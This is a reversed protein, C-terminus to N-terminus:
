GRTNRTESAVTLPRYKWNSAVLVCFNLGGKYTTKTVLLRNSEGLGLPEKCIGQSKGLACDGQRLGSAAKSRGRDGRQGPGCQWQSLRPRPSPTRAAPDAPAAGPRGRGSRSQESTKRMCPHLARVFAEADMSITM